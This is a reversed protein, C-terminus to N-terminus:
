LLFSVVTILMILGSGLDTEPCKKKWKDVVIRLANSEIITLLLIALLVPLFNPPV